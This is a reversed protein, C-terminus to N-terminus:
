KDLTVTQAATDVSKENQTPDIFRVPATVTGVAVDTAANVTGKAFAGFTEVLGPKADSLAQGQALREGIAAVVEGTAFKSHNVSDNSQVSTLDVVNVRAQALMDSYPEKTPDLAGLRTSDRALFSSLSLAKDDRSVFVTFQTSRPSADIEAIQRRFVDVDIDPSALMVDRIKSPLGHDRISMQRLTEVTLYNGMSHALISISGVNPNAVLAALMTEFADRSYMASDRDYVYDTVNGGSPWTFLIPAVDVNADHVIQAFRYVAEEFRTNYGHVFILVKRGPTRAVRANFTAKAEALNMRDVRMTVFDREPDGPPRGPFEVDGPKHGPPISVSIDAFDLGKGRAGGFIVGPPDLVPARTTAVLLNVQSTGPATPGVVLDGYPRSSCGAAITALAVAFAVVARSRPTTKRETAAGSRALGSVAASSRM